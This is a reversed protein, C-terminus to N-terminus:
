HYYGREWDGSGAKKRMNGKKCCAFFLQSHLRPVLSLPLVGHARTHFCVSSSRYYAIVPSFYEYKRSLVVNKKYVNKKSRNQKYPIGFFDLSHLGLVESVFSVLQRALPLVDFYQHFFFCGVQSQWSTRQTLSTM